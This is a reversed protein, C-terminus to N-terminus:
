MVYNDFYKLGLIITACLFGSVFMLISWTIKSLTTNLM